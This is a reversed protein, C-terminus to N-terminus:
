LVKKLETVLFDSFIKVRPAPFKKKPLVICFAGFHAAYDPLIRVIEGRAREAQAFFEPLLAIGGGACVLNKVLLLSNAIIKPQVKLRIKEHTRLHILTLSKERRAPEYEIWPAQTLDQPSRISLLTQAISKSAYLGFYSNRIRKSILSASNEPIGARLALDFNESVLDVIRDSLDVEFEIGPYLRRFETMMKPLITSAVEVPATLRILGTTQTHAKKTEAELLMLEHLADKARTYYHEGSDTLSLSRTTRKILTVGLSKELEAVKRSLTSRPIKYKKEAALFGGAELVQVLALTLSLDPSM